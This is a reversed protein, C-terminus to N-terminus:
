HYDPLKKLYYSTHGVPMDELTGFTEYGQKQYFELAQFSATELHFRTIGRSVAYTELKALLASGYGQGRLPESVWLGFVYLWGWKIEGMIGGLIKGQPDHIFISVPERLYAGAQSENYGNLGAKLQEFDSTTAPAVDSITLQM